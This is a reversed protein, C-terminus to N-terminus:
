LTKKFINLGYQLSFMKENYKGKNKIVKYIKENLSGKAFVFYVNNEKRDITSLRDRGQVYMRGSYSYNYYILVDAYKLSIGESASQQQLAIHKNTSNFDDLDNTLDDKFVQKLLDWEQKFYYFIAMKKGKFYEKIFDAKYTSLIKKNGSEFIITGNELQHIKTMLKVPTDGLIVEEKGEVVLKDLLIDVIKKIKDPVDLYLINETIRTSFGAQEQTFKVLYPEIVKDIKDDISKSYDNVKLAGFHKIAPTTFERAWAYFNKYVKFPSNNSIWFSHFVQSKSEIFPTGSLYIQPLNGFRIKIEKASKNPKPYTSSVAHNEDVILLDFDNDIIKHLSEKNIIVIEFNPNLANYDNQISSIAKLKTIFLVKKAGYLNATQLSIFTKGTRVESILYVIKLRQLIDLCKNSLDKQYLRLEM